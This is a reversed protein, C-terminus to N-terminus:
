LLIQSQLRRHVAAASKQLICRYDGCIEQGQEVEFAFFSCSCFRGESKKTTHARDVQVNKQSTDSSYDGRQFIM